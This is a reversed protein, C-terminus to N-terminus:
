HKKESTITKKMENCDTKVLYLKQIAKLNFNFEPYGMLLFMMIFTISDHIGGLDGLFM